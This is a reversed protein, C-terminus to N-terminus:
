LRLVRNHHLWEEPYHAIYILTRNEAYEQIRYKMFKISTMDMGQLPEDLLLLTPYKIMARLLLIIRQEGFSLQTFIRNELDEMHWQKLLERIAAKHHKEPTSIFGLIDHNGSHIVQLVTIPKDYYRLLEPSFFGINKKIDWISEGSGRHMGLITIDNSYAQPHDAFILSILTSKGSGNAGQILWKEGKYVTWNLNKFVIKKGYHINVNKFSIVAKNNEQKYTTQPTNTELVDLIRKTNSFVDIDLNQLNKLEIESPIDGTLLYYINQNNLKNLINSFIVSNEEDLGTFPQDLLLFKPMKVLACALTLRRTQGNSLLIYPMDLVEELQTDAIAQELTKADKSIGDLIDKVTPINDLATSNFRRQYYQDEIYHVPLRYRQPIYGIHEYAYKAEKFGDWDISGDYIALNGCLAEMLTTKGSALSGSIHLNQGTPLQFSLASLIKTTGRKLTLNEVSLFDKRM